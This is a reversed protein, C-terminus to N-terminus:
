VGKSDGTLIVELRNHNYFRDSLPSPCVRYALSNIFADEVVMSLVGPLSRRLYYLDAKWISHEMIFHNREHILLFLLDEVSSLNKIFFDIGIVVFGTNLNVQATTVTKDFTIKAVYIWVRSRLARKQYAKIILDTLQYGAKEYEKKGLVGKLRSMHHEFM